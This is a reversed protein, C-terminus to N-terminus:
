SSEDEDHKFKEEKIYELIKEKYKEDGFDMASIQNKIVIIEINFMPDREFELNEDIIEDEEKRSLTDYYESDYEVDLCFILFYNFSKLPCRIEGNDRQNM